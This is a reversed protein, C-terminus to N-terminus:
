QTKTPPGYQRFREDIRARIAVLDNGQKALAGIDRGIELCIMCGAAHDDFEGDAKMFCDWLSTHGEFQGCGCYCPVHAALSRNAAVYRYVAAVDPPLASLTTTGGGPRSEGTDGGSGLWWWGSGAVVGAALVGGLFERRGMRVSM